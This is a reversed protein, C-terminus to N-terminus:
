AKITDDNPHEGLRGLAVVDRVKMGVVALVDSHKGNRWNGEDDAKNRLTLLTEDLSPCLKVLFLQEGVPMKQLLAALRGWDHRQLLIIGHVMGNVADGRDLRDPRVRETQAEVIAQGAGNIELPKKLALKVARESVRRNECLDTEIWLNM